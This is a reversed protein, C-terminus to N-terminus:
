RRERQNGRGVEVNWQPIIYGTMRYPLPFSDGQAIHKLIVRGKVVFCSKRRITKPKLQIVLQIEEKKALM